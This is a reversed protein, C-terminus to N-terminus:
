HLIGMFKMQNPFRFEIIDHYNDGHDNSTEMIYPIDDKGNVFEMMKWSPCMAGGVLNNNM